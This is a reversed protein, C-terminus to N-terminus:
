VKLFIKNRYLIFLFLWMCCIYGLSTIVAEWPPDFWAVMGGFFFTNATQFYILNWQVMYITISNLGIVKFFFAWKKFGWVDIILYFLALLLLSWGGAFLM